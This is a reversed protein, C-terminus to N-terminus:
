TLSAFIFSYPFSGLVGLIISSPLQAFSFVFLACNRGAISAQTKTKFEALKTKGGSNSDAIKNNTLVEDLIEFLRAHYPKAILMAVLACVPSIINWVFLVENYSSSSSRCFIVLPIQSTILVLSNFAPVIKLKREVSRAESSLAMAKHMSFIPGLISVRFNLHLQYQAFVLAVCSLIITGEFMGGELYLALSVGWTMLIQLLQYRAIRKAQAKTTRTLHLMRAFMIGGVVSMYIFFGLYFQEPM